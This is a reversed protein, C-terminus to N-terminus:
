PTLFPSGLLASPGRLALTRERYFREVELLPGFLNDVNVPLHAAGQLSHLAWAISSRRPEM